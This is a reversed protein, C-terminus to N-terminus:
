WGGWWPVSPPNFKLIIKQPGSYQSIVDWDIKKLLNEAGSFNSGNDCYFISPRGRRAIFRRLTQLFYETSLSATLELHIARYIAFTFIVIWAKQGNRLILPGAYDMGTVKFVAAEKIRDEPLPAEIIPKLRLNFRKFIVCNRIVNRITKRCKLIWFDERLNSMLIQVGAHYLLM